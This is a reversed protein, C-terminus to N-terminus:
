PLSLADTLLPYVSRVPAYTLRRGLVRALAVLDSRITMSNVCACDALLDPILQCAQDVEGAAALALVYRAHWRARFRRAQPPIATLEREFLSVAPTVLGLDYLCWARTLAVPNAVTSSGLVPGTGGGFGGSLLSEARDLARLCEAHSGAMAHGQAERQAALGRVREGAAPHVQARRALEVTQGPEGGYLTILARRIFSYASIQEDGGATAYEVSADTWWLAARDQGAEQAMWGAYEAFRAALGFLSRRDGGATGAALNTLVRVQTILMPLMDAPATFQGLKRLEGFMTTFAPIVDAQQDRGSRTGSAALLSAAGTALLQRRHVPQFWMSGQGDMELVWHEQHGLYHRASPPPIDERPRGRILEGAADLAGDCLRVLEASPDRLGNEVKSLHGKTFHTRRALEALSVNRSLRLQRLRAGFTLPGAGPSLPYSDPM